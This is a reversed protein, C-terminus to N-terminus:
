KYRADIEAVSKQVLRQVMTDLTLQGTARSSVGLVSTVTAGLEMKDEGADADDTLHGVDTINMIQTVRWGRAEFWRRLVDAFAFTRYNGVHQNSGTLANFITTKGSNPNGALAM